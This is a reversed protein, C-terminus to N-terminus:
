KRFFISLFLTKLIIICDKAFSWNDIYREDIAAFEQSSALKQKKVRWQGTMGPKISLRRFDKSIFKELESPSVPCAGVISMEGKLVNIIQPLDELGTRKLIKGILKQNDSRFRIRKYTRGNLTMYAEKCFVPSGSTLLLMPIFPISALALLLLGVISIIIDSLRKIFIKFGSQAATHFTFVPVTGVSHIYSKTHNMEAFDLAIRAILGREECIMIYKEMEKIKSYHVTFIVEDVTHITLISDLSSLDGVNELDPIVESGEVSIYGVIKVNFSTKKLYYLYEQINERNGIMIARSELHNNRIKKLERTLIYQCILIILVSLLFIIFFLINTNEPKVYTLMFLCVAYSVITSLMIYRLARDQYTFTTLNYMDLAYMINIYLLIFLVPIWLNTYIFHVYNDKYSFLIAILYSFIICLVDYFIQAYSIFTRSNYKHM